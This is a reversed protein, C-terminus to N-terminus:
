SQAHLRMRGYLLGDTVSKWFVFLLCNDRYIQRSVATKFFFHFLKRPFMTSSMTELFRLRMRRRKTLTNKSRDNDPTISISWLNVTIKKCYVCSYRRISTYPLLRRTNEHKRKQTGPLGVSQCDHTHALGGRRSRGGGSTDARLYLVVIRISAISISCPNGFHAVKHANEIKHPLRGCPRALPVIRGDNWENM